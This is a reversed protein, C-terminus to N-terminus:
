KGRVPKLILDSEVIINFKAGQKIEITPQIGLSKDAVKGGIEMISEGAGTGAASEWDENAKNTAIISSGAGLMSSLVVSKFLQYTHNNVKGTLGAYGSMDIGSFKDLNISRGDSFILRQWVILIRSQGYSVSSDYTGKIKTGKPILLHNGSVSDYVDERVTALITGPLDSNIGTLLIGPIIAGAKLEYPSFSDQESYKNYNDKNEASNLFEKKQAQYNADDPYATKKSQEQYSSRSENQRDDSSSSNNEITNSFTLNSRRALMEDKVQQQILQALFEAEEDRQSNSNVIPTNEVTLTPSPEGTFENKNELEIINKKYSVIDFDLDEGKDANNYSSTNETSEEKKSNVDTTPFSVRWFAYFILFILLTILGIGISKKLKEEPLHKEGWSKENNINIDKENMNKETDIVKNEDM